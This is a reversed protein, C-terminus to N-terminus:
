RGRKKKKKKRTGPPPVKAKYAEVNTGGAPPFYRRFPRSDDITTGVRVVIQDPIGHSSVLKDLASRFHDFVGTLRSDYVPSSPDLKSGWFQLRPAGRFRPLYDLGKKGGVESLERMASPSYIANPELFYIGKRPLNQLANEIDITQERLSAGPAIPKVPFRFRVVGRGDKYWHPRADSGKPVDPDETVKPISEKLARFEERKAVLEAKPIRRRGGPSTGLLFERRERRQIDALQEQLRAKKLERSERKRVERSPEAAAKAPKKGRGKLYRDEQERALQEVRRGAVEIGTGHRTFATRLREALPAKRKPAPKPPAKPPAELRRPTRAPPKTPRVPSRGAGGKRPRTTRSGESVRPRKPKAKRAAALARELRRLKAEQRELARALEARNLRKPKKNRRASM